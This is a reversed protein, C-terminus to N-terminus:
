QIPIYYNTVKGNNVFKGKKVKGKKVLDNMRDNAQSASLGTKKVIEDVIISGEPRERENIFTAAIWEDKNLKNKKM